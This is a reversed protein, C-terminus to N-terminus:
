AEPDKDTFHWYNQIFFHQSTQFVSSSIIYQYFFWLLSPCAWIKTMLLPYQRLCYTCEKKTSVWCPSLWTIVESIIWWALASPNQWNIEGGIWRGVNGYEAALWAKSGLNFDCSHGRFLILPETKLNLIHASPHSLFTSEWESNPDLYFPLEKKFYLTTFTCQRRFKAVTFPPATIKTWMTLSAEISDNETWWLSRGTLASGRQSGLMISWISGINIVGAKLKYFRICLCPDSFM